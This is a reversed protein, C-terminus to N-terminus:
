KNYSKSSVNSIAYPKTPLYISLALGFTKPNEIISPFMSAVSAMAFNIFSFYGSKFIIMPPLPTSTSPNPLNGL